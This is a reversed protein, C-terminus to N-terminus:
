LKYKRQWKEGENVWQSGWLGGPLQRLVSILRERWCLNRGDLFGM